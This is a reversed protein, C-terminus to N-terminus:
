LISDLKENFSEMVATPLEEVTTWAWARLDLEGVQTLKARPKARPRSPEHVVMIGAFGGNKQVHTCLFYCVNSTSRFALKGLLGPGFYEFTHPHYSSLPAM